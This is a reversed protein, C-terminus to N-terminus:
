ASGSISQLQRRQKKETFASFDLNIEIRFGLCNSGGGNEELLENAAFQTLSQEAPEDPNQTLSDKRALLHRAQMPTKEDNSM